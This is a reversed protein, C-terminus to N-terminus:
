AGKEYRCLSLPDTTKCFIDGNHYNSFFPLLKDFFICVRHFNPTSPLTGKVRLMTPVKSGDNQAFNNYAVFGSNITNIAASNMLTFANFLFYGNFKVRNLPGDIGDVTAVM